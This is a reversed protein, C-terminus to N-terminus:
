CYELLFPSTIIGRSNIDLKYGTKFENLLITQETRMYVITNIRTYM